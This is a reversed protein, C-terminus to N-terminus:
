QTTHLFEMYYDIADNIFANLSLGRDKAITMLEEKKGKPLMITVRDYKIKNYENQHDFDKKTRM